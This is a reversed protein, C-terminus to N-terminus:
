TTKSGRSRLVNAVEQLFQKYRIPKAVYGDCGAARIKEEDGEMALATVAIVPVARTRDDSKLIRTAQLGDVGPLNVDMLVLDPVKARALSLGEEATRAQLVEYGEKRLLMTVLKMNVASDEIVLVTMTM